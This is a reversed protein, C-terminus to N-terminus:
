RRCPQWALPAMAPPQDLYLLADFHTRPVLADDGVQYAAGARLFPPRGGPFKLDAFLFEQGLDHLRAEVSDEGHYAKVGCLTPDLPGWDVGVDYGALAIPVYDRKLRRALHTGMSLEGTAADWNRAVHVNAAWIVMKSKPYLLNRFALFADAMGKDRAEFSLKRDRGVYYIADEWARMSRLNIRAWALDTASTQRIIDAASAPTNFLRDLADLSQTCEAHTADPIPAARPSTEEVRACVLIGNAPQDPLNIGIRALFNILNWGGFHAQGDFDQVDFGLIHLRDKEKPHARNWDCMWQLLDRLEESQWVGLFAEAAQDASGGCSEVFQSARQAPLWPSEIALVRFGAKEVLHRFVRHKMQYFGGSTHISEGLGVVSAKGILKRLPDLDGSPLGPDTGTLKYIGPLIPQPRPAAFVAASGLIGLTLVAAFVRVVRSM